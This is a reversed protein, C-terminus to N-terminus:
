VSVAGLRSLEAKANREVLLPVFDRVPRDDYRSHIDHVLTSVTSAAITPYRSALRAVIQDIIAQESLEIVGPTQTGNVQQDVRAARSM